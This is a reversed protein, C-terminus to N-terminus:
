GPDGLAGLGGFVQPAQGIVGHVFEVLDTEELQELGLLPTTQLAIRLDEVLSDPTDGTRATGGPPHRGDDPHVVPM